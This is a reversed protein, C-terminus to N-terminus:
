RKCPIAPKNWSILTARKEVEDKHSCLVSGLDLWNEKVEQCSLLYSANECVIDKHGEGYIWFNGDIETNQVYFVVPIDQKPGILYSIFDGRKFKFDPIDLTVRM